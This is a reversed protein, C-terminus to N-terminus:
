VEYTWCLVSDLSAVQGAEGGVRELDENKDTAANHSLWNDGYDDNTRKTRRNDYYAFVISFIIILIIFFFFFSESFSVYRPELVGNAM